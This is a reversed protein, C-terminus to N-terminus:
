VQRVRSSRELSVWTLHVPISALGDDRTNCSTLKAHTPTLRARPTYYPTYVVTASTLARAMVRHFLGFSRAADELYSEPIRYKTSYRLMTTTELM